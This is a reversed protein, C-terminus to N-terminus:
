HKGNRTDEKLALNIECGSITIIDNIGCHRLLELQRQMITKSGTEPMCKPKDNTVPMLRGDHEAAITHAKM